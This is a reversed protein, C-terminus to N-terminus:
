FSFEIGAKLYYKDTNLKFDEIELLNMGAGVVINNGITYCLDLGGKINEYNYGTINLSFKKWDLLQYSLGPYFSEDSLDYIANLSFGYKKDKDKEITTGIKLDEIVEEAVRHRTIKVGSDLSMLNGEADEYIIIKEEGTNVLIKDKSERYEEIRKEYEVRLAKIEEKNEEENKRLEILEDKLENYTKADEKITVVEKLTDTVIRKEIEAIETSLKITAKRNENLLELIKLEETKSQEDRGERWDRYIQYGQYGAFAILAILLVTLIIKKWDMGDDDGM